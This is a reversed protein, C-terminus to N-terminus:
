TQVTGDRIVPANEGRFEIQDEDEEEEAESKDRVNFGVGLGMWDVDAESRARVQIDAWDDREWDPLDIYIAGWAFDNDDTVDADGLAIRLADETQSLEPRTAESEWPELVRWEPQPEDFNWEVPQPVDDPVESGEIMATELQEELHLPVDATLVADTGAPGCGALPLLLLLWLPVPFRRLIRRRSSTPDLLSLRPM